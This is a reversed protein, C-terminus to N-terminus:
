LVMDNGVWYFGYCGVFYLLIWIKIDFDLCDDGIVSKFVEVVCVRYGMCYKLLVYLDVSVVVIYFFWVDVLWIVLVNEKM